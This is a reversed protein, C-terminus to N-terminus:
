LHEKNSRSESNPSTSPTSGQASSMLWLFGMPRIHTRCSFQHDYSGAANNAITRDSLKLGRENGREDSGADPVAIGEADVEDPAFGAPESEVIRAEFVLLQGAFVNTVAGLLIQLHPAGKLGPICSLEIGIEGRRSMVVQPAGHESGDEPLMETASRDAVDEVVTAVVTIEHETEEAVSLEEEVVDGARNGGGPNGRDGVGTGTAGVKDDAAVDELVDSKGPNQDALDEVGGRRAAEDKEFGGAFVGEAPISDQTSDDLNWEHDRCLRAEGRVQELLCREVHHVFVDVVVSFVGECGKHVLAAPFYDRRPEVGESGM